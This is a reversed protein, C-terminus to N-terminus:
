RLLTSDSKVYSKFSEKSQEDLITWERDCRTRREAPELVQKLLREYEDPNSGLIWCNIQRQRSNYLSHGHWYDSLPGDILQSLRGFSIANEFWQEGGNTFGKIMLWSSLSEAMDDTDPSNDGAIYHALLHYLTYEFTNIANDLAAEQTEELEAHAKIAATIYSSPLYLQSGEVHPTGGNNIIVQLDIDAKLHEDLLQIFDSVINSREIVQRELTDTNIQWDATVDASTNQHLALLFGTVLVILYQQKM